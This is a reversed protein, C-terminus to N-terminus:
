IGRRRARTRMQQMGADVRRASRPPAERVCWAPCYPQAAPCPLRPELIPRAAPFVQLRRPNAPLVRSLCGRGRAQRTSGSGEKSDPRWLPRVLARRAVCCGGRGPRDRPVTDRLWHAFRSGTKRAARGRIRLVSSASVCVWSPRSQIPHM